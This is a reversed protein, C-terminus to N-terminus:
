KSKSISRQLVKKKLEAKISDNTTHEDIVDNNIAIYKEESVLATSFFVSPLHNNGLYTGFRTEVWLIAIIIEKPVSYTKEAQKLINLHERLFEKSRKVAAPSTVSSYDTKSLYGTVNIKVFKDSFELKSSSIYKNIFTSDVGRNLLTDVVSQFVTSQPTPKNPRNDNASCSSLLVLAIILTIAM